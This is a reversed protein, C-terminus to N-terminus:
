EKNNNDKNKILDTITKKVKKYFEQDDKKSNDTIYAALDVLNLKNFDDDEIKKEIDDKTKAKIKRGSDISLKKQLEKIIASDRVDGNADFMLDFPEELKVDESGFIAEKEGEKWDIEPLQNQHEEFFRDFFNTWKLIVNEDVYKNWLRKDLYLGELGKVPDNDLYSTVSSLNDAVFGTLTDPILDQPYKKIYELILAILINGARTFGAEDASECIDDISNRSKFKSGVIDQGKDGQVLNSKPYKMFLIMKCLLERDEPGAKKYMEICQKLYDEDSVAETILDEKIKIKDKINNSLQKYLNIVYINNHRNTPEKEEGNKQPKESNLEGKNEEEKSVIFGSNIFDLIRNLEEKLTIDKKSPTSQKGTTDLISTVILCNDDKISGKSNFEVHLQIFVKNRIKFTLEDNNIQKDSLYINTKEVNLNRILRNNVGSFIDEFFAKNPSEQVDKTTKDKIEAVKQKIWDTLGSELLKNFEGENQVFAIKPLDQKINEKIKTIVEDELKDGIDAKQIDIEIPTGQKYNNIRVYVKEDFIKVLVNYLTENDLNNANDNGNKGSNKYISFQSPFRKDEKIQKLLESEYNLIHGDDLETNSNLFTGKENLLLSENVVQLKM